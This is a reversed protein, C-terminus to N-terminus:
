GRVKVMAPRLVRGRWRYGARLVEVVEQPGEDGPEHAVADHLTPDFPSGPDDIRELGEKELAGYLAAWIQKVDEGGGHSLALDATDLVPLLKEVLTEAARQRLDEQQKAVRKKYNEFDAQLRVLADRYDDREQAVLSAAVAAPDSVDPPPQDELGEPPAPIGEAEAFMEDAAATTALEESIGPAGLLDAEDSASVDESRAGGESRMGDEQRAGGESRAGDEPRPGEEVPADSGAVAAEESGDPAGGATAGSPDQPSTM